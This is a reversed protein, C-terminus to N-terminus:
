SRPARGRATGEHRSSEDGGEKGGVRVIVRVADTVACATADTAITVNPMPHTAGILAPACVGGVGVAGGVVAGGVVAGGVVVGGVVFGGGVVAGGAVGGGVAGGGVAGGGVAGVGVGTGEGTTGGGCVGAAGRVAGAGDSGHISTTAIETSYMRAAAVSWSTVVCSAVIWGGDGRRVLREVVGVPLGDGRLVVGVERDLAHLASGLHRVPLVAARYPVHELDVPRLLQRGRRLVHLVSRRDVGLFDVPQRGDGLLPCGLALRECLFLPLESQLLLLERLHVIDQGCPDLAVLHREVCETADRHHPRTAEGACLDGGPEVGVPWWAVSSPVVFM